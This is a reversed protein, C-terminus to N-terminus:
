WVRSVQFLHRCTACPRCIPFRTRCFIHPVSEYIGTVLSDSVADEPGNERRVGAFWGRKNFFFEARGPWAYPVVGMIESQLLLRQSTFIQNFMSSKHVRGAYMADVEYLLELHVRAVSPFACMRIIDLVVDSVLASVPSDRGLRVHTGMAFALALADYTRLKAGMNRMLSLDSELRTYESHVLDEPWDQGRTHHGDRVRWDDSQDAMRVWREFVHGFMVGRRGLCYTSTLTDPASALDHM